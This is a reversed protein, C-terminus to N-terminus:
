AIYSFEMKALTVTANHIPDIGNELSYSFNVRYCGTDRNGNTRPIVSM